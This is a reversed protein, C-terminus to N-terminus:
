LGSNVIAPDTCRGMCYRPRWNPDLADIPDGERFFIDICGDVGIITFITPMFPYWDTKVGNVNTEIHIAAVSMRGPTNNRVNRAELKKDAWKPVMAESFKMLSGPFIDRDDYGADVPKSRPTIEFGDIEVKIEVEYRIYGEKKLNNNGDFSKIEFCMETTIKGSNDSNYTYGNEVIRGHPVIEMYPFFNGNPRLLFEQAARVWTYYLLGETGIFLDYDKVDDAKPPTKSAPKGGIIDAIWAEAKVPEPEGTDPNITNPDVQRPAISRLLRRMHRRSVKSGQKVVVAKGDFILTLPGYQYAQSLSSIKVGKNLRPAQDECLLSTPQAEASGSAFVTFAGLAALSITLFKNM